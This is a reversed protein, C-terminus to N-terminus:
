HGLANFGTIFIWSVIAGFGAWLTTRGWGGFHRARRKRFYALRVQLSDNGTPPAMM